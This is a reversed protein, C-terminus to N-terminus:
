RRLVWIREFTFGMVNAALRSINVKLIKGPVLVYFLCCGTGLQLDIRFQDRLSTNIDHFEFFFRNCDEFKVEDTLISLDNKKLDYFLDFISFQQFLYIFLYLPELLKM